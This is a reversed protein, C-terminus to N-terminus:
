NALIPVFNTNVTDVRFLEKPRTKSPVRGGKLHVTLVGKGQDVDLEVDLEVIKKRWEGGKGKLKDHILPEKNCNALPIHDFSSYKLPVKKQNTLGTPANVSIFCCDVFDDCNFWSQDLNKLCFVQNAVLEIIDLLM